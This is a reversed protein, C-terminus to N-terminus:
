DDTLTLDLLGAVNGEERMSLIQLLGTSDVQAATERAHTVAM